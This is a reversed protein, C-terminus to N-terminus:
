KGTTPSSEVLHPNKRRGTAKSGEISGRNEAVHREIVESLVRVRRRHRVDPHVVLHLDRSFVDSPGLLRKLSPDRDAAVCPLIGVGLGRRVAEFLTQQRNARVIARGEPLHKAFWDDHPQRGVTEDFTVYVAKELAARKGAKRGAYLGFGVRGIRKSVLHPETSSGLRLALDAERASLDHLRTDSVIEVALESTSQLMTGLAPLVIHTALLDATAVRVTGALEVDEGGALRGVEEVRARIAEVSELLAAGVTTPVYGRPNRLFLRAGLTEELRDLQRAVTTHRVRLVRAAETLTGSRAVARFFRLGDWDLLETRRRVSMTRIKAQETRLHVDM